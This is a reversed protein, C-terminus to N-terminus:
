RRACPRCSAGRARRDRGDHLADGGLVEGRVAPNVAPVEAPDLLRLGRAAADPAACVAELVALEAPHRAVTLSGDPRFGVGPVEAAIQEWCSSRADLALELEAGAARGSVWVLGFNRM